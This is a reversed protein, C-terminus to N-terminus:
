DEIFDVDVHEPKNFDDYKKHNEKLIKINEKSTIVRVKVIDSLNYIEKKKLDRILNKFSKSTWTASYNMHYVKYEGTDNTYTEPKFKFYDDYYSYEIIIKDKLKNDVVYDTFLYDSIVLNDEMKYEEKVLETKGEPIKNIISTNAIEVSFLGIGAGGLILSLILVVLFKAVRQKSNFIFRIFVELFCIGALTLSLLILLPGFYTVGKVVMYVAIALATSMGVIFFIDCFAIWFVIFKCFILVIDACVDFFGKRKPADKIEKKPTEKKEEVVKEEKKDEKREEKKVETKKNDKAKVEEIVDLGIIKETLIKYFFMVALIFYIVNVVFSFIYYLFNGVVSGLIMFTDNAIDLLVDVPFKCVRILVLLLIVKIIMVLIDGASKKEFAKITVDIANTVKNLIVDVLEKASDGNSDNNIKYASKLDSAIEDINGLSKVAEKESMGSAMKEDIFGEYESIIDDVESKELMSIKNRLKTIFEEKTM